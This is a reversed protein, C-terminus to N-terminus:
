NRKGCINQTTGLNYKKDIYQMDRTIKHCDKINKNRRYIRLINLRGKKSIAAKRKTKKTRIIERKIGERIARHRHQSNNKLKYHFKKGHYNSPKLLPLKRTKTPM